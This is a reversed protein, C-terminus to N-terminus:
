MSAARGDDGSPRERRLTAAHGSSERDGGRCGGGLLAARLHRPRYEPLTDGFARRAERATLWDSKLFATLADTKEWRGDRLVWAELGDSIVLNHRLRAFQLQM